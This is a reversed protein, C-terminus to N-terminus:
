SLGESHGWSIRPLILVQNVMKTTEAQVQVARKGRQTVGSHNAEQGLAQCLFSLPLHHWPMIRDMYYPYAPIVLNQSAM